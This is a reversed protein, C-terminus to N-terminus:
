PDELGTLPAAVRLVAPQMMCCETPRSSRQVYDMMPMVMRFVNLYKPQLRANRPTKTIIGHITAKPLIEQTYQM